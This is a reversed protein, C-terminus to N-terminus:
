ARRSVRLGVALLALAALLATWGSQGAGTSCGGGSDSKNSGAGSGGGGGASATVTIAASNVVISTGVLRFELTFTQPLGGTAVYRMQNLNVGQGGGTYLTLGSLSGSGSIVSAEVAVNVGTMVTGSANRAEVVVGFTQNNATSSPQTKVTLSVVTSVMPSPDFFHLQSTIESYPYPLSLTSSTTFLVAMRATGGSFPRFEGDQLEVSGAGGWYDPGSPGSGQAFVKFGATGVHRRVLTGSDRQAYLLVQQTGETLAVLASIDPLNETEAIVTTAAGPALPTSTTVANALATAAFRVVSVGDPAFNAPPIACFVDGNAAIAITGSGGAAQITAIETLALTTTDALWLRVAGVGLGPATDAGAVLMKGRLAVPVSTTDPFFRLKFIAIDEPGIATTNTATYGVYDVVAGATVTDPGTRTFRQLKSYTPAYTSFSAYLAAPTAPDIRAADFFWFNPSAAPATIIATASIGSSAVSYRRLAGNHWLYLDGAAAGGPVDWFMGGSGDLPLAAIEHDYGVPTAYNAALPACLAALVLILRLM